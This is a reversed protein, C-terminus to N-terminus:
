FNILRRGTEIVAQALINFDERCSRHNTIAIRIAFKGNLTTASPVAVGSEHLRMIIEANLDNLRENDLDRTIFRFCVINSAVPALLELNPSAAILAALYRAQDVNQEVLMRYKDIGHEKISLWVKLARFSRSLEIGYESFWKSGSAIGRNFRKLYAVNTDFTQHHKDANRVLVCGVEYQMFMWKHLDFALSDAKEMGSSLHKLKTSLATFAGFAGDVHFWLDESRSIEALSQLDDFAGTNVTGANGVICFPQYGSAKDESIAKQLADIRIRFDRDVPILRMSESGIGLLEVAKRISNHTETSCYLTLSTPLKQLGRSAIDFGAKSNRAVTLGILNAMSGGTVLVGSAETDYYLMAKSWEIVQEEVLIPAHDAGFLSSNMAGSLMEALMGFPTGSGLVWAWHRPHINGLPYNLIYQQFEQYAQEAGQPEVPLPTKFHSRVENPMPQWAPRERVTQLYEFMDDLMKHGLMRLQNWNEPDLSLEKGLNEKDM